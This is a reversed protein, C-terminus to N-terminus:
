PKEWARIYNELRWEEPFFSPPMLNIEARSKFSTLIMWFFPFVAVLALSVMAVTVVIRWPPIRRPSQFVGDHLVGRNVTSM